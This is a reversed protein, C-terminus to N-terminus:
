RLMLFENSNFLAWCLSELGHTRTLSVADAEESTSPTRGLALRYARLVQAKVSRGAEKRLREAFRRSQVRSFPSNMLELAQIPTTTAARRPAKTSPDPCDLASLLPSKASQVNMRYVTRRNLEPSDDDKLIYFASNFNEVTFPRFGPGGAALNLRGSVALVADRVAEGELRRPPFRWLLRSEADLKASRAEFRSSQRYTASLLILRHLKKLSGGQAMFEASLWDLLEPHSPREGSFGFDSSTAVIGTGFHYQWARNVMVRPTLPNRPHAIWDALAVRRAAEPQDAPVRLDAPLTRVASLGGALVVEGRSEPEGRLLVYTPGPATSTVAYVKPVQEMERARAELAVSEAVAANRRALAAPPIAADLEAPTFDKVGARFSAAIEETTLARDYLRAEEVEGNLHEAAAMLRKGFLVVARGAPYTQVRSHEGAPLYPAGYPAGNRYVAVSGDANYSVAVHVLEGPRASEAPADLDRTRRFFDSGAMWKGSQREGFVIGDFKQGETTELAIVAGGRQDLDTLTVWVELTRERLEKELPVSVAFGSGGLRLRGRAVAAGNRTEATLGSLLDSMGREFTWLALPKPAAGAAQPGLLRTRAALDMEGVERRLGAARKRLEAASQRRAAIQEPNLLPRDGPKVGDMAAKMRYYDRTPIPDFKHDHCRACNVTLGLFAQAVTGVMDEMEEERARTRVAPSVSSNGAEDYPGSVLFGTAAPDGGPLVDGALQERAFRSYPMDTNLAQIVWDRYRWANERIRDYEFGHSEGFRAVDLWHRGWREGYRPSALLRDVVKEWANPSEDALLADLEEPTPPLGHLDFTVRRLLTARGAPPAPKLGHKELASLIFADIPTRM